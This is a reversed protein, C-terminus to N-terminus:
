QVNTALKLISYPKDGRMAIKNKNNEQYEQENKWILKLSMKDLSFNKLNKPPITPTPPFIINFKNILNPLVPMKMFVTRGMQSCTTDKQINLNMKHKDLIM